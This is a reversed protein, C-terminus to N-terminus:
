RKGRAEQRKSRVVQKKFKLILATLVIWPVLSFALDTIPFVRSFDCFKVAIKFILAFITIFVAATVSETVLSKVIWYNIEFHNENIETEMKANWASRKKRLVFEVKSYVAGAFIGIFFALSVNQFSHAYLLVAISAAILGNPPVVEGLPPFDSYILEILIGVIAGQIPCGNLCGILVGMFSPRSIFFQGFQVNDLHFIGGILASIIIRTM